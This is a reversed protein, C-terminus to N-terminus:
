CKELMHWLISLWTLFSKIIHYNAPPLHTPINKRIMSKLQTTLETKNPKRILGRKTLYFCTPLIEYGMLIKLKFNRLRAYDIHHLFRKKLWIMNKERVRKRPAKRLKLFPKWCSDSCSFHFKGNLIEETFTVLDATEQPNPWM